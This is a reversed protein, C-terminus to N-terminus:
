ADKRLNRRLKMVEDCPPDSVDSPVIIEDEDRLAMMADDDLGVSWADKINLDRMLLVLDSHIVTEGDPTMEAPAVFYCGIREYDELFKDFHARNTPYMTQVRSLQWFWKGDVMDNGIEDRSRTIHARYALPEKKDIGLLISIRIDGAEDREGFERRWERFIAKGKEGNKFGFAM